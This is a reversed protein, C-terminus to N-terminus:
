LIRIPCDQQPRHRRASSASLPKIRGSNRNLVKVAVMRNLKHDKAKYVDAMGGSGIRSIIEYREGLIVGEKLM